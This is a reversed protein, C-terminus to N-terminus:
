ARLDRVRGAETLFAGVARRVQEFEIELELAKTECQVADHQQCARQVQRALESLRDAGVHGATSVLTHALLLVSELDRGRLHSRISDPVHVEQDLFHRLVQEYLDKRNMCRALGAEFSVHGEAVPPGEAPGSLDIERVGGREVSALMAFLLAPEFPKTIYDTMGAALCQVRDQETAHATIAIIPLTRHRPDKRIRRTTEFGDMGPMQVDMLVADVSRKSLFDLASPGSSCVIVRAGAVERLLEAAVLQNLENDEVVLVTLGSLPKDSEPQDLSGYDTIPEAGPEAHSSVADARGFEVTFLFTSGQGEESRVSISGNMLEVLQKCIALGLGTGGFRRTTSPDAQMFPQFVRQLQEPTMGIGTDSVSVRLSVTHETSSAVAIDVSVQGAKTFKVGNGCLNVLVQAFRQSDGVLTAPVDAAVDVRFDLGRLHARHEIISSVTAVVDQLRFARAELQLKGAEIKSVDLVNDILELLTDAAQKTKDLYQAQKPTLDTRLLLRVLGIVANMPTRIEHSIHALFESKAQNAAEASAQSAKLSQVAERADLMRNFEVALAGFEGPLKEDARSRTEGAALARTSTILSMLPASLRRAAWAAVVVGLAIAAFVALLSRLLTGRSIAAISEVPVGAGVKLGFHTLPSRAYVRMVGDVGTGVFSSLQNRPVNSDTDAPIKSGLAGAFEPNRAVITDDASILTVNSNPPLGDPSLLLDALVRLDIAAGLFGIRHGDPSRLPVVLNAIPRRSIDGLFPKSLFAGERTLAEKFWGVDKYSRPRTASVVSLCLPNGDLDVAGVNALLPDMSTLGKVLESCREGGLSQLERRTAMFELVREARSLAVDIDRAASASRAVVTALAEERDRVLQQYLTFAHLALLPIAVAAALLSLGKLFYSRKALGDRYLRFWRQM